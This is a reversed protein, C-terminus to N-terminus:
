YLRSKGFFCSSHPIKIFFSTPVPTRITVTDDQAFAHVRRRRTVPTKAAALRWRNAFYIVLFEQRLGADFKQSICCLLHAFACPSLRLPIWSRRVAFYIFNERHSLAMSKSRLNGFVEPQVNLMAPDVFSICYSEHTFYCKGCFAIM